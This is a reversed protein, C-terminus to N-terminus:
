KKLSHDSNFDVYTIGLFKYLLSGDFIVNENMKLVNNIQSGWLWPNKNEFNPGEPSLFQKM